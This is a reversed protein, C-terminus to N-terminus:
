ADTLEDAVNQGYGRQDIAPGDDQRHLDVRVSGQRAPPQAASVAAGLAGLGPGLDSSTQVPRAQVQIAVQRCPEIKLGRKAEHRPLSATSALRNIDSTEGSIKAGERVRRRLGPPVEVCHTKPFLRAPRSAM